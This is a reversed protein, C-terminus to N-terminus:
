GSLSCKLIAWRARLFCMSMCWIYPESRNMKCAFVISSVDFARNLVTWKACLFFQIYVLHVTWFPENQVCFCSLICWIYPESRNMNCTFSMFKRFPESRNPVTWSSDSKQCGKEFSRNLVTWKDPQGEWIFPESRNLTSRTNQGIEGKIIATAAICCWLAKGIFGLGLSGERCYLLGFVNVFQISCIHIYHLYIYTYLYALVIFFIFYRLWLGFPFVCQNWKISTPLSVSRVDTGRCQSAAVRGCSWAVLIKADCFIHAISESLDLLCTVIIQKLMWFKESGNQVTWSGNQVTRALSFARSHIYFNMYSVMYSVNLFWTELWTEIQM